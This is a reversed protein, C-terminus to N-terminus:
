LSDSLELTDRRDLRGVSRPDDGGALTLDEHLRTFTHDPRAQRYGIARGDRDLIACLYLDAVQQEAPVRVRLRDDRVESADDAEDVDDILLRHALLEVLGGAATLEHDDLIPR